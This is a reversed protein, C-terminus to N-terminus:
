YNNKEVLKRFISGLEFSVIHFLLYCPITKRNLGIRNFLLKINYRYINLLRSYCSMYRYKYDVEFQHYTIFWNSFLKESLNNSISNDSIRYLVTDHDIHHYKIGLKLADLKFPYDELTRYKENFRVQKFIQKNYFLTTSFIIDKNLVIGFQEEANKQGITKLKAIRDVDSKSYVNTTNGSKERFPIHKSGVWMVDATSEVFEVYTKICDILLIDDGAILKIWEGNCVSIGKNCNASVGSNSPNYLEVVNKFFQRNEAVWKKCVDATNDTSGDDTIVLEINPYSQNKASELTEIVYKSSNYTIVCISVLPHVNHM